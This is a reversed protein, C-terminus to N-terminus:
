DWFEKLEREKKQNIQKLQVQVQLEEKLEEKEIIPEQKALEEREKRAQIIKQKIRQEVKQREEDSLSIHKIKDLAELIEQEQTIKPITETEKQEEFDDQFRFDQTEEVDSEEQIQNLDNLLKNEERVKLEIPDIKTASSELIEKREQPPIPNQPPLQIKSEARKKQITSQKTKINKTSRLQEYEAMITEYKEFDMLLFCPKGDRLIIAKEIEHNAVKDFVMKSKRILETASFMEESKYLLLAM